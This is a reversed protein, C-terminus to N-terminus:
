TPVVPGGAAMSGQALAANVLANLQPNSYSPSLQAPVAYPYASIAQGRGLTQNVLNQVNLQNIGAGQASAAGWAQGAPVTTNWQERETPQMILPRQGWSYYAQTPTGTYQPKVVNEM